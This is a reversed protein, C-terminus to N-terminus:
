RGTGSPVTAFSAQCPVLEPNTVDSEGRGIKGCAYAVTGPPYASRLGNWGATVTQRVTSM